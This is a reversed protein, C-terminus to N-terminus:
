LAYLFLLIICRSEIVWPAKSSLHIFNVHLPRWHFCMCAWESVIWRYELWTLHNMCLVTWFFPFAVHKLHLSYSHTLADFSVKGIGNIRRSTPEVTFLSLQPQPSSFHSISFLFHSLHLSLNASHVTRPSAQSNGARFTNHHPQARSSFLSRAPPPSHARIKEWVFFFSTQLFFVVMWVWCPPGYCM